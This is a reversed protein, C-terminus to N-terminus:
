SPYLISLMDQEGSVAMNELDGVGGLWGEEWFEWGEGCEM